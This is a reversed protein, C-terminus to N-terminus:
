LDDGPLETNGYSGNDPDNDVVSISGEDPQRKTDQLSQGISLASKAEKVALRRTPNQDYATVPLGTDCRRHCQLIHRLLDPTNFIIQDISSSSAQLLVRNPPHHEVYWIGSHQM